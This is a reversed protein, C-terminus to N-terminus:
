YRTTRPPAPTSSAKLRLVPKHPSDYEAKPKAAAPKAPKPNPDHFSVKARRRFAAQDIDGAALADADSKAVSVVLQQPLRAPPPASAVRAAGPMAEKALLDLLSKAQDYKGMAVYVQVLQQYLARQERTPARSTKGPDYGLAKRYAELAKAYARQKM